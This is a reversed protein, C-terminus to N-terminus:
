SDKIEGLTKALYLVADYMDKASEAEAIEYLEDIIKQYLLEYLNVGDRGHWFDQKELKSPKVAFPM